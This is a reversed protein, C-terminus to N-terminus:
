QGIRDEKHELEDVSYHYLGQKRAEELDKEDALMREIGYEGGFEQLKNEGNEEMQERNDDMQARSEDKDAREPKDKMDAM